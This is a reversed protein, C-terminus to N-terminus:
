GSGMNRHEAFEFDRNGVSAIYEQTRTSKHAVKAFAGIEYYTVDRNLDHLESFDHLTM